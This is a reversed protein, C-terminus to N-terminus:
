EDLATTAAATMVSVAAMLKRALDTQDDSTKAIITGLLNALECVARAKSAKTDIIAETVMERLSYYPVLESDEHLTSADLLEELEPVPENWGGAPPSILTVALGLEFDETPEGVCMVRALRLRDKQSLLLPAHNTCDSSGLSGLWEIVHYTPAMTAFYRDGGFRRREEKTTNREYLDKGHKTRRDCILVIADVKGESQLVAKQMRRTANDALSTQGLEICKM